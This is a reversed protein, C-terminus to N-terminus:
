DWLFENKVNVSYVLIAKEIYSTEGMTFETETIEFNVNEIFKGFDDFDRFTIYHATNYVGGIQIPEEDIQFNEFLWGFTSKCFWVGEVGSVIRMTLENDQDM